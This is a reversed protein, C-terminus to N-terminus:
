NKEGSLLLETVTSLRAFGRLLSATGASSRGGSGAAAGTVGSALLSPLHPCSHISTLAPCRAAQLSPRAPSPPRRPAQTPSSKPDRTPCPLSSSPPGQAGDSEAM